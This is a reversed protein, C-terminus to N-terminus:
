NKFDITRELNQSESVLGIKDIIINEDFNQLFYQKAAQAKDIRTYNCINMHDAIYEISDEKRFPKGQSIAINKAYLHTIDIDLKQACYLINQALTKLHQDEFLM